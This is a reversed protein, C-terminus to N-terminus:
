LGNLAHEQDALLSPIAAHLFQGPSEGVLVSYLIVAASFYIKRDKILHTESYPKRQPEVSLSDLYRM